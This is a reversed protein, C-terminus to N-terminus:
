APPKKSPDQYTNFVSYVVVEDKDVQYIVVYPFRNVKAERFPKKSYSFSNPQELIKDYCADLESFSNEGYGPQKEEYYDYANLAETTALTKIVLRYAM